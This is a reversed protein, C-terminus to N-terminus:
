SCTSGATPAKGTNQASLVRWADRRVLASDVATRRVDVHDIRLMSKAYTTEHLAAHRQV